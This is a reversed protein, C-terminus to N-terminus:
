SVSDQMAARNMQEAARTYGGDGGDLFHLHDDSLISPVVCTMVATDQRHLGYDAIGERRARELRREIDNVTEETCDVTMMLGDDYKRYDTNVAMQRRYHAPDFGAVRLNTRFLIWAIAAQITMRVYNVFKTGTGSDAVRAQLRLRDSPWSVRPGEEPVPNLRDSMDLAALVDTIVTAFATPRVGERPKVIMSLIVGNKSAIPGWQCSLGTLDPMAGIPAPDLTFRGAKLQEEVWELGGGSFVAYDAHPSAAYRAVKVDLGADRIERVSAMGVRLDLELNNKTWNATRAMAECALGVDEPPVAFRAGDGAFVFPFPKGDLANTLASIVSAGAMNVARYRGASVAVRSKVVDSIGVRWDDPLSRYISPDVIRSFDDFIEIESYTYDISHKQTMLVAWAFGTRNDLTASSAGVKVFPDIM